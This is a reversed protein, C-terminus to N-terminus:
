EFQIKNVRYCKRGQSDYFNSITEASSSRQIVDYNCTLEYQVISDSYYDCYWICAGSQGYHGYSNRPASNVTYERSNGIQDLPFDKAILLYTSANYIQTVNGFLLAYHMKNAITFTNWSLAEMQDARIDDYLQINTNQLKSRIQMFNLGFASRIVQNKDNLFYVNKEFYPNYYSHYIRVLSVDVDRKFEIVFHKCKARHEDPDLKGDNLHHAGYLLKNEFILV